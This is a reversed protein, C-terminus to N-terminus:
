RDVTVRAHVQPARAGFPDLEWFLGNSGIPAAPPVRIRMAFAVSKGPRIPHAADCNLSYLQVSGGPVLQQAYAPCRDFRVTTRSANHLVVRFRLVRGRRGHVPQSPVSARLFADTWPRGRAILNPQFTSVGITTPANPDICPPVANYDMDVHGRGGPLTIRLASPPLHPRGPVAPDCWNDWAITLDGSEGPRLALLSSAPYTTEPFNAPTTPFPKQVQEPGGDKVFIVSPRGTLRCPRSGVNRLPVLAVGGRLRPVFEVQDPPKLDAARCWTTVPEREVVQAPKAATWPVAPAVEAREPKSSSSSCAAVLVLPLLLALPSRRRM